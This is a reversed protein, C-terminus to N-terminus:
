KVERAVPIPRIYCQRAKHRMKQDPNPTHALGLWAHYKGSSKQSSYTPRPIYGLSAKFEFDEKRLRRLASLVPTDVM